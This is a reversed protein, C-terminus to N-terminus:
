GWVVECDEKLKVLKWNIELAEENEDLLERCRPSFSLWRAHIMKKLESWESFCEVVLPLLYKQMRPILNPINDGYDGWLTKHLAVQPFSLLKFKEYLIPYDVFQCTIPNLIEVYPPNAIQWIDKDNTVIIVRSDSLLDPDVTRSLTALVDDAEEGVAHCFVSKDNILSEKAELKNLEQLSERNAKYPPYLELKRTPIDDEAFSWISNLKTIGRHSLFNTVTGLKGKINNLIVESLEYKGPNLECAQVAPHYAIHVLGSYDVFIHNTM